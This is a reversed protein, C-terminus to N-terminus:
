KHFLLRGKSYRFAICPEHTMLNSVAPLYLVMQLSPPPTPQSKQNFTSDVCSFVILLTEAEFPPLTSPMKEHKNQPPEKKNTAKKVMTKEYNPSVDSHFIHVVDFSHLFFPLYFNQEGGKEEEKGSGTQTDQM